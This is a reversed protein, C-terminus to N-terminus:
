NTKIAIAVIMMSKDNYIVLGLWVGKAEYGRTGYAKKYSAFILHNGGFWVGYGQGLSFLVWRNSVGM